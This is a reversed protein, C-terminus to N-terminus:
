MTEPASVGLLTLADKLVIQAAKSLGLRASTLAVNNEDLIRVETYFTHVLSALRQIYNAIKYPERTMTADSIASPYAILQKILNLEATEVLGKGTKDSKYKAGRALVASLRAHAYQAYYVPNASSQELALDLDFDFHTSASKAIFFYRAADVGIEECLEELTIANGTRKSMKLEQGDQIIRVMQIIQVELSDEPYGFMQLAAKM